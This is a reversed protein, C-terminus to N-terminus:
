GLTTCPRQATPRNCALLPLRGARAPIVADHCAERPRQDLPQCGLLGIGLEVGHQVCGDLADELRGVGLRQVETAEFLRRLFRTARSSEGAIKAPSLRTKSTQSPRTM